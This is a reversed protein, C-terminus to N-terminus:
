AVLILEVVRSGEVEEYEVAKTGDVRDTLEGGWEALELQRTGNEEDM